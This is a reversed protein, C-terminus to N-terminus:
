PRVELEAVQVGSRELEVEFRGPLTARFELRAPAGPRVGATLDYGHLHVEDAVDSTVRLVVIEGGEVSDRGIGGVPRGGSIAYDLQVTGAGQRATDPRATTTPVTAETTTVTSGTTAATEDDKPRLALFLSLLLGLSASLLAIKRFRGTM